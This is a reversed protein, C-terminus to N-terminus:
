YPLLRASSSQYCSDAYKCPIVFIGQRATFCGMDFFASFRIEESMKQSRDGSQM